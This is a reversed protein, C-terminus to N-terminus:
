LAGGAQRASYYDCRPKKLWLGAGLLLCALGMGTMLLNFAAAYNVSGWTHTPGMTFQITLTLLGLLIAATGAAPRNSAVNGRSFDVQQWISPIRFLLFVILTLVTAYVVADVPMSAGRLARSVLIHIAGVIIGAALVNLASRYAWLEGQVLAITSRIGLVGLVIGALVFLIYLWQFPAIKAMSAGFDTPAFAVCSTGVGGLLTFGAAL